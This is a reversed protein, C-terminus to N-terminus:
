PKPEFFRADPGCIDRLYDSGAREKRANLQNIVTEGTVLDPAPPKRCCIPEGPDQEDPIDKRFNACDKCIKPESM